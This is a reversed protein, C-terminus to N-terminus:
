EDDEDIDDDEEDEMSGAEEELYAEYEEASMLEDIEDPDSIQIQIMWGDGYPDENVLEPRDELQENVKIVEGSLPSFLDSVTKVSEITGFQEDKAVEDAVDPLEVYVVDGLQDQAYDTIGITAVKGRIRAWEHERTYKLNEPVKM